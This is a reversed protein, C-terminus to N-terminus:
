AHPAMLNHQSIFDTLVAAFYKLTNTWKNLTKSRQKLAESAHPAMVNHQLFPNTCLHVFNKLSKACKNLTKLCQRSAESAHPAMTTHFSISVCIRLTKEFNECM